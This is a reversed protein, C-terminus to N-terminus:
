KNEQLQQQLGRLQDNSPDINLWADVVAKALQLDQLEEAIRLRESHLLVLFRQRHSRPWNAPLPKKAAAELYEKAETFKTDRMAFQGLFLLPVPHEPLEAHAEALFGHAENAKGNQFCFVALLVKPPHTYPALECAKRLAELSDDFKSQRSLIEARKLHFQPEDPLVLLAEQCALLAQKDNRKRAYGNILGLHADVSSPSLRLAKQFATVSEETQNMGELARALGLWASASDPATATAERLLTVARPFERNQVLALGLKTKLETSEPQVRLLREFWPVAQAPKGQTIASVAMGEMIWPDNPYKELAKRFGIQKSRNEYQLYDERLVERQEPDVCLVQLYVDAMEDARNSGYVTRQPPRHINRPNESSNDYTFISRIATGAALRVPKKYIYHDHWNEDFHEIWILPIEQRNAGVAIVRISTCLSHAHPFISLVDISVPLVFEDEVRHAKANAPIDISRSGVRLMLPLYQPAKSTFHFGIRFRLDEEKGTPQLHTHLVLPTDPPLKWASPPDSGRAVMGPTWTILQGDPDQGWAMGPYGPEADLQDRRLSEHDSDLGIRAHHTAAQNLPRIEIGRVWRATPFPPLRLVFNRFLDSGEPALKYPPSEVILDPAGLQWGDVFPPPPPPKENENGEPCGARDWMQLQTLEEDTLRREGSFEGFGPTPLWPPMYRSATVEIIQAARKQVDAYSVLPFPAAEGSRHCGSCRRFILPAIDKNFTVEASSTGPQEAAWGGGCLGLFVTEGVLLRVYWLFSKQFYSSVM